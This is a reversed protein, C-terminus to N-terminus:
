HSGFIDMDNLPEFGSVGIMYITAAAFLIAIALLILGLQFNRRRYRDQAQQEEELPTEGIESTELRTGM